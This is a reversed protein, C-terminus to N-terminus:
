IKELDSPPPLHFSHTRPFFLLFSLSLLSTILIHWTSSKWRAVKKVMIKWEIQMYAFERFKNEMKMSKRRVRKYKKKKRTFMYVYKELALCMCVYSVTPSSFTYAFSFCFRKDLRICNKILHLLSHFPIFFDNYKSFQRLLSSFIM